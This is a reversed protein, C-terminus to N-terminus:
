SKFYPFVQLQGVCVLSIVAQKDDSFAHCYEDM